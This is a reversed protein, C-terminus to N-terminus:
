LANCEFYFSIFYNYFLKYDSSLIRFCFSFCPCSCSCPCPCSSVFPAIFFTVTVATTTATTTTPVIKYFRKGCWEWSHETFFTGHIAKMPINWLINPLCYVFIETFCFTSDHKACTPSLCTMVKSVRWWNRFIGIMHVNRRENIRRNKKEYYLKNHYVKIFKINMVGDIEINGARVIWTM